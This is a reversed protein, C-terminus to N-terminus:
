RRSGMRYGIFMFVSYILADSWFWGPHPIMALNVVGGLTIMGGVILATSGSGLRGDKDRTFRAVIFGALFAGIAHGLMMVLFCSLPVQEMYARISEANTLDLGAPAPFMSTSAGDGLMVCAFFVLLAVIAVVVNRFMISTNAM